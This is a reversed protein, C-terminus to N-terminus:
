FLAVMEPTARHTVDTCARGCKDKLGGAPANVRVLNFYFSVFVPVMREVERRLLM